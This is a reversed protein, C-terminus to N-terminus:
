DNPLCIKLVELGERLGNQPAATGRLQQLWHAMQYRYTAPFRDASRYLVAGTHDAVTNAALDVTWAAAPLVLELTRKYDRRFYNLTVTASFREYDLRYHAYDVAPINLSSDSRFQRGVALPKGFLWYLYDLEHILDLHAGGGMEPRASYVKRFDVGPRWDPLYSGCYATVENPRLDEQLLRNRVYQICGLFRLNCAVYTTREQALRKVLADAEALSALAPKEIFLAANTGALEELARRRHVTPNSLLVWDPQVAKFAAWSFVNIVGAEEAAAASSRLATVTVEPTLERLVALHKRGISGLGVIGVHM